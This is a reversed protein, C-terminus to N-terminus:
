LFFIMTRSEIGDGFHFKVGKAHEVIFSNEMCFKGEKCFVCFLGINVPCANTPRPRYLRDFLWIGEVLLSNQSLFLGGIRGQDLIKGNKWRKVKM